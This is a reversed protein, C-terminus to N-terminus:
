FMSVTGQDLKNEWDSIDIIMEKKIEFESYYLKGENNKAYDFIEKTIRVDDLCYKKVKDHEGDNWWKVADIGVGSKKIGLTGEALSDLKIRKGISARVSELIDITKFEKKLDVQAYKNLLPIDFHDSNFGVLTDIEKLLEWMGEINEQTFTFYEKKQYSYACVVSLDLDAPKKRISDFLNSTEIDFILARM